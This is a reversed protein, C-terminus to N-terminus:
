RVCGHLSLGCFQANPCVVFSSCYMKLARSQCIDHVEDVSGDCGIGRGLGAWRLLIM